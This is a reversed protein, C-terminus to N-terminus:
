TNSSGHSVPLCIKFCTGKGKESECTLAGNLAQILNHAISLGLGSHGSGKSTVFPDFLRPLIEDPIGPGDDEITIEVYGQHEIKPGASKGGIHSSLYRTGITLNGGDMAEAANKILNIFVQKLRNEDSMVRPLADNLDLHVEIGSDKRFSDKTIKVLDSLLKNLDMSGTPQVENETFTTLTRLIHAIRDIEKSIIAIEDQAVNQASLKIGLIKLYNKIIGLPNNVEHVVKRAIISSAGARETQIKKLPTRRLQDAHLSLAAQKSFINLLNVNKSLHSFGIQNLGLVIVGVYAGYALMPLCLMGEKGIFRIIQVDILVTDVDTQESFLELAKGELLSSVLLSSKTQMSIFLDGIATSKENEKIARGMLCDKETDYIFFFIEELDFLIRLGQYIQRLLDEEDRAELLNQVTGLVLSADRAERTLEDQKKRDNESVSIGSGGPAKIEIDLLRAIDDVEEDAAASLTKVQSVSLGCLDEAFGVDGDEGQAPATSQSLANAVWVIQVLSLASKIRKAPEHHYMVADVLFPELNWRNLLWAGIECHTIGQRIEGALLLDPRGSYNALLESYEKPYNVWLVLRGIDHLLGTLFAEEPNKYKIEKAILQAFVACRLSHWWFTKLNFQDDGKPPSFAQYISSSIAINKITGTGLYTVSHHISEIKRPLGYYASNVLKLIKGSLSPDKEVLRSVEMMDVEDKNCASILKVLVHPLAPLNKLTSIKHHIEKKIQM